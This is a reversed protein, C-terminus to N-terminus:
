SKQFISEILNSVTEKFYPKRCKEHQNEVLLIYPIGENNMNDRSVDVVNITGPKWM